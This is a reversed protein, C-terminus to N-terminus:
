FIIDTDDALGIPKEIGRLYDVETMGIVKDYNKIGGSLEVVNKNVAKQHLKDINLTAINFHSYYKEMDALTRYTEEPIKQKIAATLALVSNSDRILQVLGEETKKFIESDIEM